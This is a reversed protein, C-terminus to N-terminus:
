YSSTATLASTAATSTIIACLAAQQAAVIAITSM